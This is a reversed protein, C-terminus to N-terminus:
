SEVIWRDKHLKTKGGYVTNSTNEPLDSYPWFDGELYYDILQYQQTRDDYATYLIFDRLDYQSVNGISVSLGPVNLGGGEQGAVRFYRWGTALALESGVTDTVSPFNLSEYALTIGTVWNPSQTQALNTGRAVAELKLRYQYLAVGGDVRVISPVNARPTFKWKPHLEGVGVPSNRGVGLPWIEVKNTLPNLVVDCACYDCLAQLALAPEIADWKVYPYVNTPASSVDYGTEGMADLCKAMLVAAPILPPNYPIRSNYEGYIAGGKWKWRRDFVHVAWLPHKSDNRPRLNAIRMACDPFKLDVGNAGFQLDGPPPNFDDRPVLYLTCVSPTVGRNFTFHMGRFGSLNGYQIYASPM